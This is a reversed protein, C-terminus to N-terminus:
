ARALKQFELKKMGLVAKMVRDAREPKAILEPLIDPVIQWSVGYRDKLWGCQEAVPDHSLKTWFYDLEDQDKCNVVFSFAPSFTHGFQGQGEMAVFPTGDLSFSYHLVANTSPDRAVFDAFSNPFVSMYFQAAEEAKGFLGDVFLLAPAISKKESLMVQWEVGYRDSTWGYKPAWPYRDLGMRIQGGQSLANWIREIDKEDNRRVFFSLAQSFKFHPGGNLGMIQYGSLDFEVTMVSGPKQGSAKSASSPYRSVQRVKSNAFLSTYLTAAEEGKTDFWLCPRIRQM